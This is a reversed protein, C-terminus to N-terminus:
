NFKLLKNNSDILLMSDNLFVIESNIGKKSIKNSYVLSGKSIDFSLLYGNSSYINIKSNVIKFDAISGFKHKIKKIPTNTFINKSWIVNGTLNDLCILLDNKLIVYTYNSTIIPKFASEASLNWNKTAMLINYSLVAQDTTIILNNNKLVLPQSLFLVADGAQSSSKFNLVWNVKQTLFNISYLEGSTNLFILNNNILDLVFNNEFDSKLFTLSSSFQWKKEGTSSNISYIVNDQNALFIQNNSFKLNSRFPIGYNKAWVISYDDLNLAYLYGLNDAAYLINKNIILNIEKNFKKFNKKYFNYETIKKNLSLSYIFITGKHDHSILNNKYFLIKRKTYNKSSPHKSLKSSKSLLIKNDSYSFNSINNTQTAYQEFWNILKTPASIKIDSTNVPKKEENFPKNKVFISEYKTGPQNDSISETVQNDVPINSADQWIGTKKDFSCSTFIITIFVLLLRKM